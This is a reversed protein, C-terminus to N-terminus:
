LLIQYDRRSISTQRMVAIFRAGTALAVENPQELGRWDLGRYLKCPGGALGLDQDRMVSAGWGQVTIIM